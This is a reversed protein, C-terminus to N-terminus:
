SRKFAVWIGICLLIISLILGVLNTNIPIIAHVTTKQPVLTFYSLSLLSFFILAAQVIAVRSNNIKGAEQYNIKEELQTAKAKVSQYIDVATKLGLNVSKMLVDYIRSSNERLIQKREEPSASMVTRYLDGVEEYIYGLSDGLSRRNAYLYQILPIGYDVVYPAVAAWAVM